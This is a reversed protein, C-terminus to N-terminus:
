RDMSQADRIWKRQDAHQQAIHREFEMNIVHMRGLNDHWLSTAEQIEDRLAASSETHNNYSNRGTPYNNSKRMGSGTSATKTYNRQAPQAIEGKLNRLSKSLREEIERLNDNRTTVKNYDLQEQTRAMTNRDYNGSAPRSNNSDARNGTRSYNVGSSDQTTRNSNNTSQGSVGKIFSSITFVILVLIIIEM